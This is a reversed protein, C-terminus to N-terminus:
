GMKIRRHKHYRVTGRPGVDWYRRAVLAVSVGATTTQECISRKEDDSWFRKKQGAKGAM